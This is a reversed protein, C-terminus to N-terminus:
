LVKQEDSLRRLHELIQASEQKDRRLNEIEQPTLRDRRGFPVRADQAPTSNRPQQKRSKRKPM